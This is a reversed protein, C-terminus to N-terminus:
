GGMILIRALYLAVLIIAVMGLGAALWLRHM